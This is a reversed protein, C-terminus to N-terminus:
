RRAKSIRPGFSRGTGLPPSGRPTLDGEPLALRAAATLPPDRGCASAEARAPGAFPKGSLNQREIQGDALVQLGSGPVENSLGTTVEILRM